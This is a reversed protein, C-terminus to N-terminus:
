LGRFMSLVMDIVERWNAAVAVGLAILAAILAALGGRRRPVPAPKKAGARDALRTLTVPGAIGDTVLGERKQFAMVAAETGPGFRGDIRGTYDGTAILQKQLETIEVGREGRMLLGDDGVAELYANGITYDGSEILEAEEARRRVLGALRRGGATVGTKRILRAADGTEGKLLAAAWKWGLARPGLNFVISVAGDFSHQSAERHGFFRDVALGYEEACLYALCTRAEDRTMTAGPGFEGRRHAAWWDRFSDSAWTFGHGITGIGIPDFYWHAVFGEHIAIFALGPSSVARTM